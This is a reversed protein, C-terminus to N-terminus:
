LKNKEIIKQSNFLWFYRFLKNDFIYYFFHNIKSLFILINVLFNPIILINLERKIYNNYFSMITDTKLFNIVKNRTNQDITNFISEILEDTNTYYLKSNKNFAFLYKKFFIIKTLNEIFKFNNLEMLAAPRFIIYSFRNDKNTIIKESLIKTCEYYNNAKYSDQHSDNLDLVGITSLHVLIFNKKKQTNLINSIKKVFQYNSKRLKSRSKGYYGVLNIIIEVKEIKKLIFDDYHKSKNKKIEKDHHIEYKKNDLYKLIKKGLEGGAGLILIKKM